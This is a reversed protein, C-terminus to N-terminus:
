RRARIGCLLKSEAILSHCDTAGCEIAHKYSAIAKQFEGHKMFLQGRVKYAAADGDTASVVGM